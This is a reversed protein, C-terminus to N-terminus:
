GEVQNFIIDISFQDVKYQTQDAKKACPFIDAPHFICPDNCFVFWHNHQVNETESNEKDIEGVLHNNM